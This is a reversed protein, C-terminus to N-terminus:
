QKYAERRHKIRLITVESGEVFCLIRYNGIRIKQMGQLEGSLGIAVQVLTDYDELTEIKKAIRLRMPKDLAAFDVRAEKTFIFDFSM